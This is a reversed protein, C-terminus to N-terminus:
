EKKVTAAVAMAVAQNTKLTLMVTEGEVLPRKLESLVLHLGKSDMALSEYAPVTIESITEDKAGDIKHLEVRGAVATTASTVYIDYATPNEIVAGAVATPRGAEPPRIWGNSATPEKQQAVLPASMTALVTMLAAISRTITGQM